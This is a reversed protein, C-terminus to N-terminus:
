NSPPFWCTNMEKNEGPNELIELVCFILSKLSFFWAKKGEGMEAIFCFLDFLDNLMFYCEDSSLQSLWKSNTIHIKILQTLKFILRWTEVHLPPCILIFYIQGWFFLLWHNVAAILYCIGCISFFEPSPYLGQLNESTRLVCFTQNLPVIYLFFSVNVLKRSDQM